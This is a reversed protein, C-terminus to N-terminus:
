LSQLWFPTVVSIFKVQRCVLSLHWLKRVFFPVPKRPPIRRALAAADRRDGGVELGLEDGHDIIPCGHVCTGSLLSGKKIHPLFFFPFRAREILHLVFIKRRVLFRRYSTAVCGSLFVYGPQCSWMLGLWGLLNRCITSISSPLMLKSDMKPYGRWTIGHV